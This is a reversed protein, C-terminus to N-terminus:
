AGTGSSAPTERAAGASGVSDAVEYGRSLLEGVLAYRQEEYGPGLLAECAEVGIQRTVLKMAFPLCAAEGCKRCNLNPLRKLAALASMEEWGTHDPVLTARRAWIENILDCLPGLVSRAEAEGACGAVLIERPWLAVHHGEWALTLAPANPLYRAEPLVANLYPLVASIDQDLEAKAAAREAFPSCKPMELTLDCVSVRM